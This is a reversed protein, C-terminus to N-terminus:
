STQVSEFKDIFTRQLPNSIVSCYKLQSRVLSIYLSRLAQVDTCTTCVRKIFGCMKFTKFVNCTVHGKFNLNSTLTVEIDKVATVRPPSQSLINYYFSICKKKNTFTMVGCKDANLKLHWTKGWLCLDKQVLQCDTVSSIERFLKSDDAYLSIKCSDVHNTLDNIYLIFLLPGIQSGQPVGSFVPKWDSAKGELAVCQTRNLFNSLLWQLGIRQGSYGYSKLKHILLPHCVSEFANSFDLYVSDVHKKTTFVNLFPTWTVLILESVQAM